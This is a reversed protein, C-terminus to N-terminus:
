IGFLAPASINIQRWRIQNLIHHLEAPHGWKLYDEEGTSNCQLNETKIRFTQQSLERFWNLRQIPSWTSHQDVDSPKRHHRFVRSQVTERLWSQIIVAKCKVFYHLPVAVYSITSSVAHQQLRFNTKKKYHHNTIVPVILCVCLFYISFCLLVKWFERFDNRIKVTWLRM